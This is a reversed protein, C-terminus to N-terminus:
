AIIWSTTCVTRVSHWVLSQSTFHWLANKLTSRKEIKEKINMEVVGTTLVWLASHFMWVLKQNIVTCHLSNGRYAFANENSSAASSDSQENNYHIIISTCRVNIIFCIDEHTSGNKCNQMILLIDIASILFSLVYVLWM